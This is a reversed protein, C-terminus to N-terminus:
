ENSIDKDKELLTDKLVFVILGSLSIGLQESEKKIVNFFETEFVVTLPHYKSSKKKQDKNKLACIIKDKLATNM